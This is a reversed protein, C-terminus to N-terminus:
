KIEGAKSTVYTKIVAVVSGAFAISAVAWLVKANTVSGLGPDSRYKTTAEQGQRLGATHRQAATFASATGRVTRGEGGQRSM